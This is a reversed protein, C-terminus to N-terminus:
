ARTSRELGWPIMADFDYIVVVISCYGFTRLEDQHV